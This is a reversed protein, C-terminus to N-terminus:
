LNTEFYVLIDKIRGFFKLKWFYVGLLLMEIWYLLEFEM